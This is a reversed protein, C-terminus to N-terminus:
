QNCGKGITNGGTTMDCFKQWMVWGVQPCHFGWDRVKPGTIFLTWANKGPIVELRHAYTARHFRVSGADYQKQHHIGGAAITHEIYSGRLLVSLWFWPHDHLARDDDSRLFQHLYVNFFRNRPIVHWRLLYPDAPDGIVVDPSPKRHLVRRVFYGALTKM